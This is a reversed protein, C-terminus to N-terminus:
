KYTQLFLEASKNMKCNVTTDHTNNNRRNIVFIMGSFHIISPALKNNDTMVKNKTGAVSDPNHIVKM